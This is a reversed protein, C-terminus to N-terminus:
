NHPPFILFKIVAMIERLYNTPITYWDIPAGLHTAPVGASTAIKSARFVHFRNTIFATSYGQPFREDLLHSSFLFNEHTSTSLEEKIIQGAPIKREILYREMALAETITEQPGQGGSVVFVAHPNKAYYAVAENLRYALTNPVKEGHIGAGLIIVANEDYRATDNSGYIALFASFSVLIICATVMLVHMWTKAKSKYWLVGYITVALSLIGLVVIGMNFNAVVAMIATDILLLIGLAIVLFSPIQKRTM